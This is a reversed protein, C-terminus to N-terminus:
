AERQPQYNPQQDRDVSEVWRYTDATPVRSLAIELMESVNLDACTEAFRPAFAQAVAKCM